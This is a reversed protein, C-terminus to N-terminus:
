EGTFARPLFFLSLSLSPSASPPLPSSPFEGTLKTLPPSFFFLGARGLYPQIDNKLKSRTFLSRQPLRPPSPFPFARGQDQKTAALSTCPKAGGFGVIFGPCKPNADGREQVMYRILFLLAAEPKNPLAGKREEGLTQRQPRAPIRLM